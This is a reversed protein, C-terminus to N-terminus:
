TFGQMVTNVTIASSSCIGRWSDPAPIFTVASVPVMWRSAAACRVTQNARRTTSVTAETSRRRGGSSRIVRSTKGHASCTSGTSTPWTSRVSCRAASRTTPSTPVPRVPSRRTVSNRTRHRIRHQNSTRPGSGAHDAAATMTVAPPAPAPAPAPTETVTVTAPPPEPMPTLTPGATPVPVPTPSGGTTTTTANASYAIIATVGLSMVLGLLITKRGTKDRNPNTM